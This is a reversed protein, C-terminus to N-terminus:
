SFSRRCLALVRNTYPRDALGLISFIWVLKQYYIIIDFVKLKELTESCKKKDPFGKKYEASLQAHLANLEKRDFM